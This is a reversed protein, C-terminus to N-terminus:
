WCAPRLRPVAVEVEVGAPVVEEKLKASNQTEATAFDREADHREQEYEAFRDKDELNGLILWEALFRQEPTADVPPSFAELGLAHAAGVGLVTLRRPDVRHGFVHVIARDLEPGMLRSLPALATFKSLMAM